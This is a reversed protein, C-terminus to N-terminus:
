LCKRYLLSKKFHKKDTNILCDFLKNYVLESINTAVALITSFNYLYLWFLIKLQVLEFLNSIKYM